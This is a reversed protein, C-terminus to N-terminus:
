EKVYFHQKKIDCIDYLVGSDDSMDEIIIKKCKFQKKSMRMLNSILVKKFIIKNM